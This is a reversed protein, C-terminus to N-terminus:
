ILLTLRRTGSGRWWGVKRLLKFPRHRWLGNDTKGM